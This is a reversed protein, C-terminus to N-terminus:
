CAGGVTCAPGESIGSGITKAVWGIFAALGFAGATEGAEQASPMLGYFRPSPEESPTATPQPTAGISPGPTPTPIRRRRKDTGYYRMGPEEVESWVRGPGQKSNFQKTGIVPGSLVDRDDGLSAFYDSLKSVYRQLDRPGETRGYSNGPKVEWIYVEDGSWLILDARGDNGTDNGSAGPISNAAHGSSGIDVTVYGNVGNAQAWEEAAYGSQCVAADHASMTMQAAEGCEDAVNSVGNNRV